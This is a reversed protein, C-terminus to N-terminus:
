IVHLRLSRPPFFFAKVKWHATPFQELVMLFPKMETFFLETTMLASLGQIECQSLNRRFLCSWRSEMSRPLHSHISCLIPITVRHFNNEKLLVVTNCINWTRDLLIFCGAVLRFSHQKEKDDLVWYCHEFEIVWKNM